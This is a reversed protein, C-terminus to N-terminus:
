FRGWFTCAYKKFAGPPGAVTIASKSSLLSITLRPSGEILGGKTRKGGVVMRGSKDQIVFQSARMVPIATRAVNIRWLVEIGFTRAKSPMKSFSKATTVRSPPSSPWDMTASARFHMSVRRRNLGELWTFEDLTIM